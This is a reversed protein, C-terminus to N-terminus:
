PKRGASQFDGRCGIHARPSTSETPGVLPNRGRVTRFVRIMEHMSGFGSMEAVRDAGYDSCTLLQEAARLRLEVLMGMPSRGLELHFLAMLRTESIQLYACIDEIAIANHFHRRMYEYAWLVEASCPSVARTTEREIIGLPAIALPLGPSPTGDMLKELHMAAQFAVEDLGSDVTSVRESIRDGTPSKLDCGLIAVDGPISLGARRAIRCVELAADATVAWVALPTSQRELVAGLREVARSCRGRGDGNLVLIDCERGRTKLNECFHRARAQQTWNDYSGQICLFRQMGLNVLYSAALASAARHDPLVEDIRSADVPVPSLSVCPLGTKQLVTLGPHGDEPLRTWCAIIGDGQWQGLRGVVNVPICDIDWGAERAHRRVGEVYLANPEEM